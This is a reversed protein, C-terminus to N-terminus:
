RQDTPSVRPVGREVGQGQIRLIMERSVGEPIASERLAAEELYVADGLLEPRHKAVFATLPMWDPKPEPISGLVRARLRKPTGRFAWGDRAALRRRRVVVWFAIGGVIVAALVVGIILGWVNGASDPDDSRDRSDPGRNRFARALRAVLRDALAVSDTRSGFLRSQAAQDFSVVRTNWASQMGDLWRGISAAFGVGPGTAERLQAPPTGDYTRWVGPEVEAEVWAHANSQRVTFTGTAEDYDSAMYGAIVRSPIGVSRCMGALASAFFECHGLRGTTVFWVTPDQSMPPTPPSLTYQFESRLWSEFARVARPTEEPDREKPDPEIRATRLIREAIERLPALSEPFDLTASRNAGDASPLSSKADRVIIASYSYPGGLGERTLVGTRENFMISTPLNPEIQVARYPTFFPTRGRTDDFIVVELRSASSRSMGLEYGRIHAPHEPGASAEHLVELVDIGRSNSPPAVSGDTLERPMFESQGTSRLPANELTRARWTGRDYVELVEGRLYQTETAVREANSQINEIIKARMVAAQSQSLRGGTNLNVQNSYGVSRGGLPRAFRGWTEFSPGRPILVFTSVSAAVGSVLALVAILSLARATRPPLTAFPAHLTRADVEEGNRLRNEEAVRELPALLQYTLVAMVFLPVAGLVLLGVAFSNDTLTAGIGIFASMLLLQGYDRWRRREWCKTAIVAILVWGFASVYAELSRANLLAILIVGAFVAPTVWRPLGGWKAGARGTVVWGLVMASVGAALMGLKGEAVGFASTCLVVILIMVFNFAWATTM